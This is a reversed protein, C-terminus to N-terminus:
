TGSSTSSVDPPEQENKVTKPSTDRSSDREQQKEGNGGQKGGNQTSKNRYAEWLVETTADISRGVYFRMTTDISEHRMLQMLVPPMVRLAWRDGFARRFDHASAYKTSGSKAEVHVVVEAKEGIKSIIKSVRNLTLREGCVKEAKPDFVWGKREDAPIKLLFEVFEPAVLLLRDQHGKELEAPIRLVPKDGQFEIRLKDDRDWSLELAESLRLGSWWLGRLFYRWSEARKDGVVAPVSRLIEEFEEDTPARGKPKKYIKARKLRKIKPIASLMGTNVAWNLAAKLHALYGAITSEAREDYPPNGIVGDFGADQRKGTESFFAEPFELEWHFPKMDEREARGKAAIFWSDKSLQAFLRPQGLKGLAIDYQTDLLSEDGDTVFGSSWLDALDRFPNRIKEFARYAKGKAKVDELKDSLGDHVQYRAHGSDILDFLDQLDDWIRTEHRLYDGNGQGRERDLVGAIQDRYRALSRNETYLRNVRYPLLGRDEAFMIFLLRYLLVFSQQRCLELDTEPNLGNPAYHLFGAICLRLAEFARTRLDEGVGIRYESSGELARKVLPKKGNTERFGAAGFFLYFPLFEEFYWDAETFDHVGQIWGDLIAPLDVQLYAEFRRHHNSYDKPILRWLRGNTLIAFDLQSRNLYWEIQEPPYERTGNVVTPRDLRVHWAKADALIAPHDWFSPDNKGAHVASDYSTDDLFLAYDPKRPQLFTQYWTKWGLADFVPWIFAAELTQEGYHEVRSSQVKWVEALRALAAKADDVLEKWEPELNLRNELWHSSFLSSNYISGFQFTHRSAFRFKSSKMAM